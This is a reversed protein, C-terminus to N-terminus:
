PNQDNYIVGKYINGLNKKRKVMSWGALPGMRDLLTQKNSMVWFVCWVFERFHM